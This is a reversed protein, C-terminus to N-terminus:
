SAQWGPHKEKFYISNSKDINSPIEKKFCVDSHVLYPTDINKRNIIVVERNKNGVIRMKSLRHKSGTKDFYYLGDNEIRWYMSEEGGGFKPNGM